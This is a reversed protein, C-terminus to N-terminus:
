YIAGHSIVYRSRRNMNADSSSEENIKKLNFHRSMNEKRDSNVIVPFTEILPSAVPLLTM